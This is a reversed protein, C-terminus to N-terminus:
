SATANSSVRRCGIEKRWPAFLPNAAVIGIKTLSRFLFLRHIEPQLSRTAITAAALLPNPRATASSNQSPLIDIHRNACASAIFELAGGHFNFTALPACIKRCASFTVLKHTLSCSQQDRYLV